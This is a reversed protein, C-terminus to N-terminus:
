GKIVLVRHDAVQLPLGGATVHVLDQALEFAPLDSRRSSVVRHRRRRRHVGPVSSLRLRFPDSAVVKVVVVVVAAAAAEPRRRRRPEPGLRAVLLPGLRATARVTKIFLLFIYIIEM